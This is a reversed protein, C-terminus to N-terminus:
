KSTFNQWLQLFFDIWVVSVTDFLWIIIGAIICFLSTVIISDFIVKPSAWKIRMLTGIMGNKKKEM